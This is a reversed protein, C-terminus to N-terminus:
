ESTNCCLICLIQDKLLNTFFLTFHNVILIKFFFFIDYSTDYLTINSTIDAYVKTLHISHQCFILLYLTLHELRWLQSSLVSQWPLSWSETLHEHNKM